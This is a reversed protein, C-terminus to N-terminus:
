ERPNEENARELNPQDRLAGTAIKKTVRAVPAEPRDLLRLAAAAQDFSMMAQCKTLAAHRLLIRGAIRTPLKEGVNSELEQLALENAAIYTSFTDWKKRDGAYFFNDISGPAVAEIYSVSWAKKCSQQCCQEMDKHVPCHALTLPGM